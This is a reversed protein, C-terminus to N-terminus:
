GAAELTGLVISAGQACGHCWLDTAVESEEVGFAVNIMIKKKCKPCVYRIQYERGEQPVYTASWEERVETPKIDM